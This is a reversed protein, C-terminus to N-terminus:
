CNWAGRRAMRLRGPLDRRQPHAWGCLSQWSAPWAQPMVDVLPERGPSARHGEAGVGRASPRKSAVM